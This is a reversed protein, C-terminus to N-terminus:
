GVPCLGGAPDAEVADIDECCGFTRHVPQAAVLVREIRPAADPDSVQRVIRAEDGVGRAFSRADGVSGNFETITAELADRLGDGILNLSLM